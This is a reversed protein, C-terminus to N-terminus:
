HGMEPSKNWDRNHVDRAVKEIISQLDWNGEYAANMSNCLDLLYMVIDGVADRVEDLKDASESGAFEPALMLMLAENLEGVEEVVGVAAQLTRRPVASDGVERAYSADQQMPLLGLFHQMKTAVYDAHYVANESHEAVDGRIQQDVKLVAHNVAGFSASIKLLRILLSRRLQPPRTELSFNRKAWVKHNQQIRQLQTRGFRTSEFRAEGQRGAERSILMVELATARREVGDGSVLMDGDEDRWFTYSNTIRFTGDDQKEIVNMATKDPKDSVEHTLEGM